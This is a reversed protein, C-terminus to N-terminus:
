FAEEPIVGLGAALRNLYNFHSVVQTTELIAEDDWGHKRLEDTDAEKVEFPVRTLKDAFRFLAKVNEEVPASEYNRVIQKGLDLEVGLKHLIELHARICYSNSNAASVVLGIQEKLDPSLIGPAMNTRLTALMLRVLEPKAGQALVLDPLFGLLQRAEDYLGRLEESAEDEPVLPVNPM